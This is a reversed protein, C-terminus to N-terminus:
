APVLAAARPAISARAHFLSSAQRLRAVVLYGIVLGFLFTLATMGAFSLEMDHMQPIPHIQDIAWLPLVALMMALGLVIGDMLQRIRVSKFGSWISDQVLLAVTAGTVWQFISLPVEGLLSAMLRPESYQLYDFLVRFPSTLLATLFGISLIFRIPYGGFLGESAFAYNRKFYYVVLFNIVLNLSPLTLMKLVGVDQNEGTAGMKIGVVLLCILTFVVTIVVAKLVTPMITSVPRVIAFGIAELRRKRRAFSREGALTARAVFLLLKDLLCDMDKRLDELM